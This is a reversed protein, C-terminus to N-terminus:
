ARPFPFTETPKSPVTDHFKGVDLQLRGDPLETLVDRLRAGFLLDKAEYRHRGHVPQLSIGDTGVVNIQLEVEDKELSEPTAGFLPSKETIRHMVNFSRSLVQSRDRVLDVDYMRYLTVGEATIETRVVTVSVRAEFITGSRDNGLRFSLTPVGDMPSICVHRSFVLEGTTRSFRAFVIGTAVATFILGVVAEGVVLVNAATSTPYMAGYGVTGMTQVSFFFADRFSGPQAGSVGGMELYGLAFVANIALFATAIAVLVASWRMELLLHYADRLPHSAAGVILVEEQERARAVLPDDGSDRGVAL